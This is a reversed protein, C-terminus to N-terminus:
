ITQMVFVLDGEKSGTITIDNEELITRVKGTSGVQTINGYNGVERYISCLDTDIINKYIHMYRNENFPASSKNEFLHTYGRSKIKNNYIYVNFSNQYLDLLQKSNNDI